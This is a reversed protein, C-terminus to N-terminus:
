YRDYVGRISFLVFGFIYYGLKGDALIDFHDNKFEIRHIPHEWGMMKLHREWGIRTGLPVILLVVEAGTELIYQVTMATKGRGLQSANLYGGSRTAKHM